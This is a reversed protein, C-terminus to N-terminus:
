VFIEGILVSIYPGLCLFFLNKKKTGLDDVWVPKSQTFFEAVFIELKPGKLAVLGLKMQLSSSMQWDLV